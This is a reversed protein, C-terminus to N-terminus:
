EAAIVTAAGGMVAAGARNALKVARPSKLWRRAQSALFIWVFDGAILALGLTLTLELWIFPTVAALDIISPLFAVYFIMLKPNGLTVAMGAFFMRAPRESKPLTTEKEDIRATWMRYALYFLYAAGLYKLVVFAEHFTQAIHSLGAVACTLWIIEGLWMASLFPLVSRWGRNIVRAVLAAVSQGPTVAFVFEAVFFIVLASLTM